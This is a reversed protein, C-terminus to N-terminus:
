SGKPFLRRLSNLPSRIRFGLRGLGVWFLGTYARRRQGGYSLALRFNEKASGLLGNNYAQRGLRVLARPVQAQFAWALTWLGLLEARRSLCQLTAIDQDRCFEPSQRQCRADYSASHLRLNVAPEAVYGVNYAMGIAGFLYWDTNRPLDARFGGLEMLCSKKVVTATGCVPCGDLAKYGIEPAKILKDKSGYDTYKLPAIGEKGERIPVVPSFVYGVDPHRDIFRVYRELAQPHRLNDDPSIAWVFEGQALGFGKNVNSVLGLNRENRVHIVRSDGFARAVEPTNDPSEDDMILVEFKAYSQRLISSVCEGLFHAYNYCPVVFSIMGRM